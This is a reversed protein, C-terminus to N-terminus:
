RRASPRWTRLVALSLLLMLGISAVALGAVEVEPMGAWFAGLFVAVGLGTLVLGWELFVEWGSLPQYLGRRILDRDRRHDLYILLGALALGLLVPALTLYPFITM